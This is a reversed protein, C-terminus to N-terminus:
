TARCKQFQWKGVSVSVKEASSTKNSELITVRSGRKRSGNKALAAWSSLRISCHKGKNVRYKKSTSNRLEVNKRLKLEIKKPSEFFLISNIFPLMGIDSVVTPLFPHWKDTEATTVRSGTKIWVNKGVTTESMPISGKILEISKARRTVYSSM